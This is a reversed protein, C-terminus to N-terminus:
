RMTRECLGTNRGPGDQIRCTLSIAIAFGMFTPTKMGIPFLPQSRDSFAGCYGRIFKEKNAQTFREPNSAHDWVYVMCLPSGMVSRVHRHMGVLARITTDLLQPHQTIFLFDIGYHRHIEL